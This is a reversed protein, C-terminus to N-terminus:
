QPPHVVINNIFIEDRDDDPQQGSDTGNGVRITMAKLVSLDVGELKSLDIDWQRWFRTQPAQAHPHGVTATGGATDELVISMPQEVNDVQGRYNLSLTGVGGLTLDLPPDFSRTAETVYPEYQNQYQLLLQGDNGDQNLSVYGYDPINCIWVPIIDGSAEYGDFNDVAVDKFHADAMSIATSSVDDFTGHFGAPQADQNMGFIASVGKSHVADQTGANEWADAANTDILTPTRAVLAGGKSEYLSATVYVPDSGVVDLEAYYSRAHGVGPVLEEHFTKMIGESNHVTKFVEIRLNAPGEQYHILMLYTSSIAGPAGSLSGDDMFYSTRAALGLYNQAALGAANIVAGIRVDTFEEPSGIGLGFAAGGVEISNTEALALYDNGDTGAQVTGAFSGAIQPYSPFQWTSLDFSDDNFTELWDAQASLCLTTILVLIIWMPCSRKARQTM